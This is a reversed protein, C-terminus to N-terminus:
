SQAKGAAIAEIVVRAARESPREGNDLYMLKEMRMLAKLQRRRPEGEEILDQLVKALSEPNAAEQLFEPCAAEGLIINPLSMWKTKVLRRAIMEELKSVKYAVVVPVHALALELTVTGSAALAARAQRFAAYKEAEGM